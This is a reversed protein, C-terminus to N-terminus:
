YNKLYKNNVVTGLVGVPRWRRRLGAIKTSDVSCRGGKITRNIPGLDIDNFSPSTASMGNQKIKYARQFIQHIHLDNEEQLAFM